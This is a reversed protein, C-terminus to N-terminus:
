SCRWLQFLRHWFQPLRRLTFPPLFPSSLSPLSLLELILWNQLFSRANAANDFNFSVVGVNFSVIFPLLPLFPSSSSSLSLHMRVPNNRQRQTQTLIATTHKLYRLNTEMYVPFICIIMLKVLPFLCVPQEIQEM